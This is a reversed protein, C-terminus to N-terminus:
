LGQLGKGDGVRWFLQGSRSRGDNYIYPKVDSGLSSIEAFINGFSKIFRIYRNNFHSPVDEDLTEESCYNENLILVFENEFVEIESFVIGRKKWNTMMRLAEEFDNTYRRLDTCEWVDVNKLEYTFHM